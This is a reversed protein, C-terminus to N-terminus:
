RIEYTITVNSTLKNEGTPLQPAPAAAVDATMAMAGSKYAYMPSDGSESFSVIRVLQVGLDKALVVAKAKADNIAIRRAEAKLADEKDIAFNPGNMETIGIKGLGDVVINTNDINRIKVEINQSVEYGTIIQKAPRPPCTQSGCTIDTEYIYDYKPYSSYNNTKIDKDAIGNEKLFSLVKSIKGTVVDQAQKVTKAEERETLNMVAIDPAAFVEGTGSFDIITQPASASGIFKYEKVLSFVEAALFLSFLIAIAIISNIVSNPLINKM